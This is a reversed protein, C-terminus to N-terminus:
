ELWITWKQAVSYKKTWTTTYCPSPVGVSTCATGLKKAYKPAGIETTATLTALGSVPNVCTKGAAVVYVSGPNAGTTLPYNFDASCNGNNPGTANGPAYGFNQDGSIIVDAPPTFGGYPNPGFDVEGSDAIIASGQTVVISYLLEDTASTDNSDDEYWSETQGCPNYPTGTSSTGNTFANCGYGNGSFTNNNLQWIYAPGGVVVGGNPVTSCDASPSATDGFCPWADAGTSDYAQQAFAQEIGYLNNAPATEPNVAFDRQANTHPVLKLHWHHVDEALVQQGCVVFAVIVLSAFIQFLRSKKM